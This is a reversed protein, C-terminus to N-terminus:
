QSHCQERLKRKPNSTALPYFHLQNQINSKHGIIKSLKIIRATKGHIYPIHIIHILNMDTTFLSLKVEKRGRLAARCSQGEARKVVSHTLSIFLAQLLRESINTFSLESIFSFSSYWCMVLWQSALFCVSWTAYFQYTYDLGKGLIRHSWLLYCISDKVEPLKTDM